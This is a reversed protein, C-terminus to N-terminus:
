TKEICSSVYLLTNEADRRESIHHYLGAHSRENQLADCQM